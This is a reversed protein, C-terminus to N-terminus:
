RGVKTGRFVPRDRYDSVYEDIAERIVTSLYRGNDTAVRRLDLRQGPTVRVHVSNTAPADHIPRRGSRRTDKSM